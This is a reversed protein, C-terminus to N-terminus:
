AGARVRVVDGDRIVYEKGDLHPRSKERNAMLEVWHTVEIKSFAKEYAPNIQAVARPAKDGRHTTWARVEDEGVTFFTVVDLLHHVAHVFRDRTPESLGISELFAPQEASDLEAIEAELPACMPLAEAGHERAMAALTDPLPKGAEDEGVNLVALLPKGSLLGLPALAHREAESMGMTRLPKGADLHPRIMELEHFEGGSRGGHAKRLRDLRRDVIGLDARALEADCERLERLPEAARGDLAAFGRLVLCMADCENLTKLADGGLDAIRAGPLDYLVIESPVVKRVLFIEALTAIRPDAVKLTGLHVHGDGARHLSTLANFLTTKGSGPLGVIGAKM